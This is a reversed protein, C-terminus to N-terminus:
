ISFKSVKHYRGSKIKISMLKATEISVDSQIAKSMCKSINKLASDNSNLKAYVIKSWKACKILRNFNTEIEMEEIRDEAHKLCWLWRNPIASIISNYLMIDLKVDYMECLQDYTMIKGDHFFDKIYLIGADYAKSCFFMRGAAKIHSNYWVIQNAIEEIQSSESFNYNAWAILIQHWSTNKCKFQKVDNPNFNCEWFLSNKIKCNIHYYALWTLVPDNSYMRKIWQVKISMSRFKINCLNLGGNAKNQCLYETRIKPKRSNWIYKAIMQMIKALTEDKVPIVQM